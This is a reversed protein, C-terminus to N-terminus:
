SKFENKVDKYELLAPFYELIKYKGRGIRELIGKKVFACLIPNTISRISSNMKDKPSPKYYAILMKTLDSRLIIDGIQKSNILKKLFNFTIEKM